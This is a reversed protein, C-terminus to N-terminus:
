GQFRVVLHKEEPHWQWGQSAAAAELRTTGETLLKDGHPHQNGSANLHSILAAVV